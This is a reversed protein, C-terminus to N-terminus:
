LFFFFARTHQIKSGLFEFTITSGDNYLAGGSGPTGIFVSNAGTGIAQNYSFLSNFIIWSVGICSLAGGNSGVNGYGEAGAQEGPPHLM